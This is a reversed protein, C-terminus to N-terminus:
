KSGPQSLHEKIADNLTLEVDQIWVPLNPTNVSWNGEANPDMRFYIRNGRDDPVDVDYKIGTGSSLKRFNFERQREGAKVLKSFYIGM